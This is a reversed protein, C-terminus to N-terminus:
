RPPADAPVMEDGQPKYGKKAMCDIYEKDTNRKDASRIIALVSSIGRMKAQKRCNEADAKMRMRIETEDTDQKSKELVPPTFSRDSPGALSCAALGLGLWSLIVVAVGPKWM